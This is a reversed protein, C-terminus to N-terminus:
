RYTNLYKLHSSAAERFISIKLLELACAMNIQPNRGMVVNHLFAYVCM